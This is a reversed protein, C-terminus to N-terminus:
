KKIFAGKFSGFRYYYLGSSLGKLSIRNIGQRLQLRRTLRGNADYISLGGAASVKFDMYSEAPNPYGSIQPNNGAVSVADPANQHIIRSFSISGDLAVQMLRYYNSLGYKMDTYSYHLLTSSNGASAKSAIFDMPEFHSGDISREIYFGKNNIETATQWVIRVAHDTYTSTFDALDVYLTTACPSTNGRTASGIDGGGLGPDYDIVITADSTLPNASGVMFSGLVQIFGSGSLAGETRGADNVLDKTIISGPCHLQSPAGSFRLTGGVQLSVTINNNPNVFKLDGQNNLVADEDIICYGANFVTNGGILMQSGTLLHVSEGSQLDSHYDKTVTLISHNNLTVNHSTTLSGNCNLAGGNEVTLNGGIQMNDQTSANVTLQGAVILNGGGYGGTFNLQVTQGQPITITINGFGSYTYTGTSLTIDQNLYDQAWSLTVVSVLLLASLLLKKKM